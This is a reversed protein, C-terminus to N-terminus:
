YDHEIPEGDDYCEHSPTVQQGSMNYWRHCKPCENDLPDYLEVEAGCHCRGVAPETYSNTHPMVVPPQYKTGVLALADAVNKTQAEAVNGEKDCDPAWAAGPDNIHEFWLSYTTNSVRRRPRIIQIAM